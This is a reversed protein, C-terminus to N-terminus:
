YIKISKLISKSVIFFQIIKKLCNSSIHRKSLAVGERNSKAKNKKAGM